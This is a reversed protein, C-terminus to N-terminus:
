FTMLEPPNLNAAMYEVFDTIREDSIYPAQLRTPVPSGTSVFLMDGKGTLKVADATDIVNKSDTASAIKFLRFKHRKLCRM